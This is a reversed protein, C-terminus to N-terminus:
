SWRLSLFYSLMIHHMFLANFLQPTSPTLLPCHAIPLPLNLHPSTGGGGWVQVIALEDTMDLLPQDLQGDRVAIGARTLLIYRRLVQTDFTHPIHDKERYSRRTHPSLFTHIEDWKQGTVEQGREGGAM